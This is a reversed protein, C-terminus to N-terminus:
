FGEAADAFVAAADVLATVTSNAEEALAALSALVGKEVVDKTGPAAGIWAAEGAEIVDAAAKVIHAAIM